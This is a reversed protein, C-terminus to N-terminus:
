MIRSAALSICNRTLVLYDVLVFEVPLKLIATVDEVLGLPVGVLVCGTLVDKHICNLLHVM